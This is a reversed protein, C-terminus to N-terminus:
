ILLYFDIIKVFFTAFILGDFRDLLGGHGPIINDTDKVGLNRKMFSEIFDGVQSSLAIGFFVFIFFKSPYLDIFKLLQYFIIVSIWGAIIGAWTKGPSVKELVKPGGIIRGGFYGGIDAVAVALVFAVFFSVGGVETPSVLLSLLCSISLNVYFVFFSLGKSRSLYFILFFLPINFFLTLALDTQSFYLPSICIIILIVNYFLPKEKFNYLNFLERLFLINLVYISPALLIPFVLAFLFFLFILIMASLSRLKLDEFM